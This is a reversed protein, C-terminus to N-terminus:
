DRQGGAEFPSELFISVSKIETAPGSWRKRHHHFLRSENHFRIINKILRIFRNEVLCIIENGRCFNLHQAPDYGGQHVDDFRAHDSITEPAEYRAGANSILGIGAITRGDEIVLHDVDGVRAMRPARDRFAKDIRQTWLDPPEFVHSDASLITKDPM